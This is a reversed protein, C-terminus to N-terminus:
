PRATHRDSTRGRGRSSRLTPRHDEPCVYGDRPSHCVGRLIGDLARALRELDEGLALKLPLRRGQRPVLDSRELAAHPQIVQSGSCHVGGVEDVKGGAFGIKQGLGPVAHDAVDAPRLMQPDRIEDNM